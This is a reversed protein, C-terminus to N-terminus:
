RRGGPDWLRRARRPAESGAQGPSRAGLGLTEAELFTFAGALPWLGSAVVMELLSPPETEGRDARM